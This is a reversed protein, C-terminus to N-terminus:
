KKFASHITNKIEVLPLDIGSQVVLGLVESESFKRKKLVASAKFVTINRQGKDASRLMDPVWPPVEKTGYSVFDDASKYTPYNVKAKVKISVLDPTCNFSYIDTCPAFKMHPGTAQWDSSFHTQIRKMNQRYQDADRIVESFRLVARFRECVIGNKEKLHSKSPGVVHWYGLRKLKDTFGAMTTKGDDFDLVCLQCSEFNDTSRENNKWAIGAWHETTIIRLFEGLTAVERRTFHKHAWGQPNKSKSVSIIM